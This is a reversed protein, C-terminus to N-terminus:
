DQATRLRLVPDKFRVDIYKVDAIEVKTQNFFSELITFKRAVDDRGVKIEMLGSKEDAKEDPSLKGDVAGPVFLLLSADLADLAQVRRIRCNKLAQVKGAERLMALALQLDATAYTGGPIPHRIKDELGTILPVEGQLVNDPPIFITGSGDVAFIRGLKVLAVPTRKILHVFLRDPLVKVVRVSSCDSCGQRIREAHTHADLLFINRGKLYAFTEAAANRAFVDRVAFYESSTICNWVYGLAGAACLLSVSGFAVWKVPFASAQKKM